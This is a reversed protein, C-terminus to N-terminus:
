SRNLTLLGRQILRRILVIKGADNLPCVTSEPETLMNFLLDDEEAGGVIERIVFQSKAAIYRLASLLRLPASLRGGPFQIVARNARAFVNCIMGPRHYVVSDLALADLRDLLALHGDPIPSLQAIFDEKRRELVKAFNSSDALNRLLQRFHQEANERTLEETFIGVPLAGRLSVNRQAEIRVAECILDLWRVPDINVTLHISLEDLTWAEHVYGRPIYLLDGPQLEIDYIPEGLRARLKPLLSGQRPSLGMELNAGSLPLKVAADFIRWRKRGGVQLVFVDHNDFHADFGQAGKPTLYLNCGVSRHLAQELNRCLGAVPLSHLNIGNLIISHGLSSFADYVASTHIWGGDGSSQITDAGKKRAVLSAGLQHQCLMTDVDNLTVLEGYYSPDHRLLTLPKLDFYERLFHEVGLPSLLTPFDIGSM